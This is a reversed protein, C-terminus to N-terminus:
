GGVLFYISVGLLLGSFLIGVIGILLYVTWRQLDVMIGIGRRLDDKDKDYKFRKKGLEKKYSSM